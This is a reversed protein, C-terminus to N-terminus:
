FSRYYIRGIIERIAISSKSLSHANPMWNTPNKLFYRRDIKNTKFDVPFPQVIFGEREFIKKARKMHFASTVLNIKLPKKNHIKLFLKKVAQAEQLTNFVKGTSFLKNKSFGYSIAKDIYLNGEIPSNPDYPNGAGTFVLKQGKSYKLLEIGALFRDPDKWEMIKNRNQSYIFNGSSLVVIADAQKFSKEDM